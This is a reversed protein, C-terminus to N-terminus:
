NALAAKAKKLFKIQEDRTLYGICWRMYIGSYKSIIDFEYDEM